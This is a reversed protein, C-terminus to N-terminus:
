GRRLNLSYNSRQLALVLDQGRAVFEGSINMDQGSNSGMSQVAGANMSNRVLGSMQSPTLVAETGHLLEMHGSQPGYSVGGKAFGGGGIISGVIGGVKSIAAGAPNIATMIAKIVLMKIAAATLDIVLQKVSNGLAEFPDKATVVNQFINAFSQGISQALTQQEVLKANIEDIAIKRNQEAALLMQANTTEQQAVGEALTANQTGAFKGEMLPKGLRTLAERKVDTDYQKQNIAAMEKQVDLLRQQVQIADAYAKNERTVAEVKKNPQSSESAVQAAKEKVPKVAKADLNITEAILKNIETQSKKIDDKIKLISQNFTKEQNLLNQLKQQAQTESGITAGGIGGGGMRDAKLRQKSLEERAAVIDAERKQQMRFIETAKAAVDGELARAAARKYIADTLLDTTKTLDKTLANESNLGKFYAPYQGILKDIAAKRQETSLATNQAAAVYAKMVSIDNAAAERNQNVSETFKDLKEKAEATKKNFGMIGNQYILFASSVVSLALGVGGAGMLSGALAKLAGGTSGSEAKLRQFSELLPNLNNQIGMFGFPLDQAVRGVNTLAQGAQNSGKVLNQTNQVLPNISSNLSEMKAKTDNINKQLRILGESDTAKKIQSEFTKLRARLENLEAVAKSNDATIQIELFEKPM